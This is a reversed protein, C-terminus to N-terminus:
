SPAEYPLHSQNVCSAPTSRPFASLRASTPHGPPIVFLYTPLYTPLYESARSTENELLYTPLYTYSAIYSVAILMRGERTPPAAKNQEIPSTTTARSSDSPAAAIQAAFTSSIQRPILFSALARSIRSWGDNPGPLDEAISSSNPSPAHLYMPLGSM